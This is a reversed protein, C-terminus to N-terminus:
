KIPRTKGFTKGVAAPAQARSPDVVRVNEKNQMVAINQASAQVNPRVNPQVNPAVVREVAVKARAQEYNVPRVSEVARNSELRQAVMIEANQPRAVPVRQGNVSQRNPAAVRPNLNASFRHAQSVSTPSADYAEADYYEAGPPVVNVDNQYITPAAFNYSNAYNCPSSCMAGNGDNCGGVYDGCITCPNCNSKPPRPACGCDPYIGDTFACAVWKFPAAFARAAGDVVSCLGGTACPNCGYGLGLTGCTPAPLDCTPACSPAPLDCTPACSPAPLDCTPACSPIAPTDCAPACAGYQAFSQTAFAFATMASTIVVAIKASMKM